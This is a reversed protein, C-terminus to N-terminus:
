QAGRGVGWCPNGAGVRCDSVTGSPPPPRGAAVPEPQPRAQALAAALVRDDPPHRFQRADGAVRALTALDPETAEEPGDPLESTIAAVALPVAAHRAAADVYRYAAIFRRADGGPIPPRRPRACCTAAPATALRHSTSRTSTSNAPSTPPSRGPPPPSTTLAVLHPPSGDPTRPPNNTAAPRGSPPPSTSPHTKRTAPSRTPTCIRPPWRRHPSSAPSVSPPPQPVPAPPRTGCRTPPAWSTSRNTPRVGTPVARPRTRNHRDPERAPQSGPPPPPRHTSCCTTSGHWTLTASCPNASTPSSKGPAAAKSPPSPPSPPPTLMRTRQDRGAPLEIFHTGPDGHQWRHVAATASLLNWGHGALYHEASALTVEDYLQTLPRDPRPTPPPKGARRLQKLTTTAEGLLLEYARHQWGHRFGAAFVEGVATDVNGPAAPHFVVQPARPRPAAGNWTNTRRAASSSRPATPRTHWPQRHHGSSHGADPATRRRRPHCPRHTAHLAPHRSPRTRAPAPGPAATGTALRGTRLESPHTTNRPTPRM